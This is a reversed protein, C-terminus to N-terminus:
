VDLGQRILADYIIGEAEAKTMGPTAEIGLEERLFKKQQEDAPEQGRRIAAERQARIRAMSMDHRQLWYGAKDGWMKKIRERCRADWEDLDCEETQQKM